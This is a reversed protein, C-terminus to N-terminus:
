FKVVVVNLNNFKDEIYFRDEFFVQIKKLIKDLLSSSFTLLYM